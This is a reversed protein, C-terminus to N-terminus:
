EFVIINHNKQNKLDAKFAASKCMDGSEDGCKFSGVCVKCVNCVGSWLSSNALRYSSSMLVKIVKSSSM